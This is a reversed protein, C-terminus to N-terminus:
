YNRVFTLTATITSANSTAMIHLRQGNDCTCFVPGGGAYMKSVCLLKYGSPIISNFNYACFYLNNAYSWQPTFEVDRHTLNSNLSSIDDSNGKIGDEIHNMRTPNVYSTTDWTQKSYSM